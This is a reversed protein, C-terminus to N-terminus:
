MSAPANNKFIRCIISFSGRSTTPEEQIAVSSWQWDDSPMTRQAAGRATKRALSESDPHITLFRVPVGITHQRLWAHQDLQPRAAGKRNESGTGGNGSGSCPLPRRCAARPMLLSPLRWFQCPGTRFLTNVKRPFPICYLHQSREWSFQDLLGKKASTM